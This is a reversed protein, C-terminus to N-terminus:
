RLLGLRPADVPYRRRRHDAAERLVRAQWAITVPAGDAPLGADELRRRVAAMAVQRVATVAPGTPM